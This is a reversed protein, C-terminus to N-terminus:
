NSEDEPPAEVLIEEECDPVTCQAQANTGPTIGRTNVRHMHDSGM